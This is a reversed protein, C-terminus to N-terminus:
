STQAGSTYPEFLAKEGFLNLSTWLSVNTFAGGSRLANSTALSITDTYTKSLNTSAAVAGNSATMTYSKSQDMFQPQNTLSNLLNSLTIPAPNGREGISVIQGTASLSTAEPFSGLTNTTASRLDLAGCLALLVLTIKLRNM